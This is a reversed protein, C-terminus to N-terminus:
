FRNFVSCSISNQLQVYLFLRLMNDLCIDALKMALQDIIVCNTANQCRGRRNVMRDSANQIRQHRLLQLINISQQLQPVDWIKNTTYGKGRDMDPSPPPRFGGGKPKGGYSWFVM